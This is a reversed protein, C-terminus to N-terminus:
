GEKYDWEARHVTFFFFHISFPTVIYHFSFLLDFVRNARMKNAKM